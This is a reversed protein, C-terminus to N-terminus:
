KNSNRYETPSEGTHKKFYRGLYSQDPFHMRYAIEQVSLNTSRLLMKIELMVSRDILEKASNPSIARVISSLYRTSICLSDAYFTVERERICNEHVLALFRGFLESQRTSSESRRDRGQMSRQAKDCMELLVNQLRNKIITNRFINEHDNYTFRALQFWVSAGEAIKESPHLIPHHVLLQFFSPPLRFAAESFLDKSFACYIVSFDSSRDTLQLMMGPLMFLLSHRHMEGEFKDVSVSASGSQCFLIAGSGNRTSYNSFFALDSDGVVFPEEPTTTLPDVSPM